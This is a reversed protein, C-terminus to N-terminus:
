EKLSKRKLNIKESNKLFYYSQKYDCQSDNSLCLSIEFGKPIGCLRAKVSRDELKDVM